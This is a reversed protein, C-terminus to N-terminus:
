LLAVGCMLAVHLHDGRAVKGSDDLTHLAGLIARLVALANLIDARDAHQLRASGLRKAVRGKKVVFPGPLPEPRPKLWTNPM